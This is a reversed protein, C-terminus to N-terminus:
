SAVSKKIETTIETNTDCGEGINTQLLINSKEFIRCYSLYKDYKRDLYINSNSYLYNTVDFAKKGNYM